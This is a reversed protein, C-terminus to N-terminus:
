DDDTCNESLADVWYAAMMGLLAAAIIYLELIFPRLVVASVGSVLIACLVPRKALDGFTM